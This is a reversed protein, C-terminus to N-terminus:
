GGIVAGPDVFEILQGVTALCSSPSCYTDFDECAASDVQLVVNVGSAGVASMEQYCIQGVTWDTPIREDAVLPRYVVSPDAPQAGGSAAAGAVATRPPGIGPPPSEPRVVVPMSGNDPGTGPLSLLQLVDVSPERGEEEFVVYFASSGFTHVWSEGLVTEMVFITGGGAAPNMRVTSSGLLLASSIPVSLGDIAIGFDIETGQLGGSPAYFLTSMTLQQDNVYALMATRPSDDTPASTARLPDTQRAAELLDSFGDGDTDPDSVDTGLVIEQLDTLGDGDSDGNVIGAAALSQNRGGTLAVGLVLAATGAAAMSGFRWAAPRM